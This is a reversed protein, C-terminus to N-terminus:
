LNQAPILLLARTPLLDPIAQCGVRLRITGVALNPQIHHIRRHLVDVVHGDGESGYERALLHAQSAAVFLQVDRPSGCAYYPEFAAVVKNIWGSIRARSPM